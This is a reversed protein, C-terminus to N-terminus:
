KGTEATIDETINWQNMKVFQVNYYIIFVVRLDTYQIQIDDKSM